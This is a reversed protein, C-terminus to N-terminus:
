AAARESTDLGRLFTTTLADFTANAARVAQARGAPAGDIEVALRDLFARWRPMTATGCGHFYAAGSEPTLGLQRRAQAAIFQGGLASGELVYLSGLAAPLTALGPMDAAVPLWSAGLQALDERVLDLRRTGAFWDQWRAPLVQVMLPEWESLFAAFGQLVRTYHAKGFPQRLGLVAEIAAHREATAERLLAHADVHAVSAELLEREVM